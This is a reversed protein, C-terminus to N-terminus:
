AKASAKKGAARESWKSDLVRGNEWRAEGSLLKRAMERISKAEKGPLKESELPIEQKARARVAERERDAAQERQDWLKKSWPELDEPIEPFAFPDPMQVMMFKRSQPRYMRRSTPYRRQLPQLRVYSRVSLSEVGYLHWLYDRLDFKTFRLPM